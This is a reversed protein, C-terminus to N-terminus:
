HKEEIFTQYFEDETFVKGQNHRKFKFDMDRIASVQNKLRRIHANREQIYEEYTGIKFKYDKMVILTEIEPNSNIELKDERIVPCKDNNREVYHYEPIADCIEKQTFWKDPESTLLNILKEKREM